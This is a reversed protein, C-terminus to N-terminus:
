KTREIAIKCYEESVDFGIYKRKLEKAVKTTTGSGVFPDLVL